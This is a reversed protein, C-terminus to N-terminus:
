IRHFTAASTGDGGVYRYRSSRLSTEYITPAPSARARTARGPVISFVKYWQDWVILLLRHTDLHIAHENESLRQERLSKVAKYQWRAGYKAQMKREVFPKFGKNLLELARGVREHNSQAM